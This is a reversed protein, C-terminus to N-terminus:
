RTAKARALHDVGPLTASDKRPQLATTFPLTSPHHYHRLSPTTKWFIMAETAELDM